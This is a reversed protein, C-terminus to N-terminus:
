FKLGGDRAGQALAKIKGHFVFGGRDFVVREIKAKKAKEAMLKGVEYAVAVNGASKEKKKTIESDNADALIKNNEDDVLQAYTHNLSRFVCLRPRDKNGRIKSRVRRHRRIRKQYKIESKM